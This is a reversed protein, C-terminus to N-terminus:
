LIGRIYSLALMCPITSLGADQKKKRKTTKGHNMVHDQYRAILEKEIEHIMNTKPPSKDKLFEEKKQIREATEFFRQKIRNVGFV